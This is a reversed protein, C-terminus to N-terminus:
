GAPVATRQTTSEADIARLQTAVYALGAVVIAAMAVLLGVDDGTPKLVMVAVVLYLVVTDARAKAMVKRIATRAEQTMGDRDLIEAVHETGPKMVLMGILFTALYGALGLVVWLYDFGWPGEAVLLLGLILVALSAPVFLKLSLDASEVAVRRLGEDDHAREARYAQIDLLLGAGLWVMAAVIHGFLLLEYFSMHWKYGPRVWRTM